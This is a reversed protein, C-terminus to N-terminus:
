RLAGLVNAAIMAASLRLAFTRALRQRDDLRGKV